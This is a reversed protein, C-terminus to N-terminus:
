IGSSQWIKNQYMSDSTAVLSSLLDAVQLHGAVKMMVGALRLGPLSSLPAARNLRVATGKLFVHHKQILAVRLSDRIHILFVKVTLNNNSSNFKNRKDNINSHYM